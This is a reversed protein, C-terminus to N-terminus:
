LALIRSLKNNKRYSVAFKTNKKYFPLFFDPFICFITQFVEWFLASALITNQLKNNQQKQQKRLFVPTKLSKVGSVCGLHVQM